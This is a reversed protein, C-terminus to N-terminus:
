KRRYRHGECKSIVSFLCGYAFNEKIYEIFHRQNTFSCLLNNYYSCRQNGYIENKGSKLPPSKKTKHVNTHDSCKKVAMNPKRYKLVFSAFALLSQHRIKTPNTKIVLSLSMPDLFGTKKIYDPKKILIKIIRTWELNCGQRNFYDLSNEPGVYHTTSNPVIKKNYIMFNTGKFTRWM